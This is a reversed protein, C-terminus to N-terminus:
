RGIALCMFVFPLKSSQWSIDDFIGYKKSADIQLLLLFFVPCNFTCKILKWCSYFFNRIDVVNPPLWLSIVTSDNNINVLRLWNEACCDDVDFLPLPCYRDSAVATVSFNSVFGCRLLLRLIRYEGQWKHFDVYNWKSKDGYIINM